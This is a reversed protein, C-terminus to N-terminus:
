HGASPSTAGSESKSESNGPNAKSGAGATSGGESGEPGPPTTTPTPPPDPPTTTPTPPPPPPPDSNPTPPVVPTSIPAQDAPSTKVAVVIAQRSDAPLVSVMKTLEVLEGHQAVAVAELKARVAVLETRDAGERIAEEFAANAAVV